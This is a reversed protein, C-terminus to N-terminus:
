EGSEGYGGLMGQEEHEGLLSFANTSQKESDLCSNHNKGSSVITTVDCGRSGNWSVREAVWSKTTKSSPSVRRQFVKVQKSQKDLTLSNIGVEGACESPEPLRNSSKVPLSTAHGLVADSEPITSLLSRWSESVMSCKEPSSFPIGLDEADESISGLRQLPVEKGRKLGGILDGDSETELNMVVTVPCPVGVGSSLAGSIDGAITMGKDGTTRAAGTASSEGAQRLQQAPCRTIARYHFKNMPGPGQFTHSSEKSPKPGLLGPQTLKGRFNKKKPKSWGVGENRRKNGMKEKNRTNNGGFGMEGANGVRGMRMELMHFAEEVRRLGLVLQGRIDMLYKTFEQLDLGGQVFAHGSRESERVGNPAAMGSKM